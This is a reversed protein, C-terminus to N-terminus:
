RTKTKKSIRLASSNIKNLEELSNEKPLKKNLIKSLFPIFEGDNEKQPMPYCDPFSVLKNFAKDKENEKTYDDIIRDINVMTDFYNDRDKFYFPYIKHVGKSNFIDRLILKDSIGCSHGLIFVNFEDSELHKKLREDNNTYLYNFKKINRVFNNDNKVLLQKSEDNDAAFGFIIPNSDNELEGHIHILEHELNCAVLYKRVSNTYNFNLIVTDEKFCSFFNKYNHNEIFNREKEKLYIELCNKIVAFDRNLEIVSYSIVGQFNTLKDINDLNSLINFYLYEIDSWLGKNRNILVQILGPFSHQDKFKYKTPNKEIDNIFDTYSTKLDHALDFGNGIIILNKM